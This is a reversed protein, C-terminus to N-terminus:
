TKMFPRHIPKRDVKISDIWVVIDNYGEFSPDDVTYVFFTYERNIKLKNFDKKDKFNAKFVWNYDCKDLYDFRFSDDSNDYKVIKIRVPIVSM